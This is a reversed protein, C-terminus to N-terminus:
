ATLKLRVRIIDILWQPNKGKPLLHTLTQLQHTGDRVLEELYPQLLVEGIDLEKQTGFM